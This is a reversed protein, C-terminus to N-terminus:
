RNVFLWPGNICHQCGNSFHWCSNIFHWCSNIFHRCSNIFYGYREHDASNLRAEELAIEGVVVATRGGEERRERERGRGWLVEGVEMEAMGM